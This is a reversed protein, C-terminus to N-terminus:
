YVVTFEAFEPALNQGDTEAPVYVTCKAGNMVATKQFTFWVNDGSGGPTLGYSGWTGNILLNLTPSNSTNAGTYRLIAESSQEDDIGEFTINRAGSEGGGAPDYSTEYKTIGTLYVTDTKWPPEAPNNDRWGTPQIFENPVIAAVSLSGQGAFFKQLEQASSLGGEFNRTDITFSRSATSGSANSFAFDFKFQNTIQTVEAM